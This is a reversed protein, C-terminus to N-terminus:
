HKKDLAALLAAYNEEAMDCNPHRHGNEREFRHLVEVARRYLPEAEALRNTAQLLQALNNLETAIRPHDPGFGNEDIM